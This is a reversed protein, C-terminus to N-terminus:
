SYFLNLVFFCVFFCVFFFVNDLSNEPRQVQVGWGGGGGGGGGGGRTFNRLRRM